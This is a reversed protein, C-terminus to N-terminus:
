FRAHTEETHALAAAFAVRLFEPLASTPELPVVGNLGGLVGLVQEEPRMALVVQVRDGLLLIPDNSSVTGLPCPGDGDPDAPVLGSHTMFSVRDPAPRIFSDEMAMTFQTGIFCSGDAAVIPTPFGLLVTGRVIVEANPHDILFILDRTIETARVAELEMQFDPAPLPISSGPQTDPIVVLTEPPVMEGPITPKFIFGQGPNHVVQKAPDFFARIATTQGERIPFPLTQKPVIKFGTRPGSPVKATEVTGMVDLVVADDENAIVLLVQEIFGVPVVARGM